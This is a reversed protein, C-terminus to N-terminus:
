SQVIWPTIVVQRSERVIESKRFAEAQACHQGRQAAAGDTLGIQTMETMDKTDFAIAGGPLDSPAQVYYRWDVDPFARCADFIDAMSMSFKQIDDARQKIDAAHNQLTGNWSSLRNSACTVVDVVIDTEVYGAAKCRRIGSFVNSGMVVGGDSYVKGNIEVSEFVGPIASSARVFMAFKTANYSGDNNVVMTEDFLKLKGTADQTAGIVFKRNGLQRSSLVQKLTDFLPTTNQFGTKTLQMAPNSWDVYVNGDTSNINTFNLITDMLFAGM